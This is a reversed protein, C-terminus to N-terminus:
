LHHSEVAIEDLEGRDELRSESGRSHPEEREVGEEDEDEDGEAAEPAPGFVWHSAGGSVHKDDEVDESEGQQGDHVRLCADRGRDDRRSGQHRTGELRLERHRRVRVLAGLQQRVDIIRFGHIRLGDTWPVLRRVHLVRRKPDRRIQGNSPRAATDISIINGIQLQGHLKLRIGPQMDLDRRRVNTRLVARPKEKGLSQNRLRNNLRSLARGAKLTVQSEAPLVIRGEGERDSAQGGAVHEEGGLARDQDVFVLENLEATRQRLVVVEISQSFGDMGESESVIEGPGEVSRVGSVGNVAVDVTVM